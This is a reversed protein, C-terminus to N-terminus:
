RAAGFSLHLEGFEMALTVGLEPDAIDILEASVLDSEVMQVRADGVRFADTRGPQADFVVVEAEDDVRLPGHVSAGTSGGAPASISLSVQAGCREILWARAQEYSLDDVARMM